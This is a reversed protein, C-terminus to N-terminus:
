DNKILVEKERKNHLLNLVSIDKRWTLDDDFQKAKSIAYTRNKYSQQFIISDENLVQSFYLITNDVDEFRVKVVRIKFNSKYTSEREFIINSQM